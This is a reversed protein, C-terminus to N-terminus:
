KTAHKILHRHIYFLQKDLRYIVYMTQLIYPVVSSEM